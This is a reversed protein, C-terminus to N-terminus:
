LSLSRGVLAFEDSGLLDQSSALPMGSSQREGSNRWRGGVSRGHEGINYAMGRREGKNAGRGAPVARLM